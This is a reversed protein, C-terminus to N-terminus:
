TKMYHVPYTLILSSACTENLEGPPLVRAFDATESQMKKIILTGRMCQIRRPSKSCVSYRPRDTRMHADTHTDTHRNTVNTLGASVTSCM